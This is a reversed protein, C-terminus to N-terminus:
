LQHKLLSSKSKQLQWEMDLVHDVAERYFSLEQYYEVFSLEGEQLSDELLEEGDLEELIQLYEEYKGVLLQHDGYHVDLFLEEHLLREEELLEAQKLKITSVMLSNKGRWLPVSLGLYPGSSLAGMNGQLSYGFQIDPYRQLNTVQIEQKALAVNQALMQIHLDDTKKSQWINELSPLAVESVYDVPSFRLEKGGQLERLQVALHEKEVSLEELLFQEHLWVLRAKNLSLKDIQGAEWLQEYHEVNQKARQNREREIEIKKHLYVLELMYQEAQWLIEQRKAQYTQELKKQWLAKQKARAAYLLPFDIGQTIQLEIQEVGSQQHPLLYRGNVQFDGLQNEMTLLLNEALIQQELSQLELNHQEIDNYFQSWDEQAFVTRSYLWICLFLKM